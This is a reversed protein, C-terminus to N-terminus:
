FMNCYGWSLLSMEFKLLVLHNSSRCMPKVDKFTWLPFMGFFFSSRILM